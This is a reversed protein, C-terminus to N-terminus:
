KSNLWVKEDPAYNRPKAHKNHYQKQLEQVHQLNKNCVAMLERLETVLKDVSKSRPRLNIDKKYSVRPYYGCNLKFPTYSTSANKANNYAFEAMPLLRVWDDQEFNIFVQLYAEMISYRRKTQGDIQLQFAIFLKRKIGLFYCLSSWFKSIFVLGRDSVISDPSGHHRVVVKIIVEALAPADITVKVLEYHVMKTLWDVIVLITDYTEDKWNTSVPLGTVFDMSLDKWRHTLVPLYQLDNYTKYRVLKSALYVNYGIVYAKINCCFTPWYYKQAILERTKDIGFHGALLDNQHRNILKIRVIEPMHPLSQYHLVEEIEKWSKKLGQERIRQFEHDEAQLELLRLSM